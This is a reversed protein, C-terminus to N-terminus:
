EVVGAALKLAAAEIAGEFDEGANLLEAGGFRLELDEAGVGGGAELLVEAFAGDSAEFFLHGHGVGELLKLLAGAFDAIGEGGHGGLGGKDAEIQLDIAAEAVQLLGAEDFVGDLGAAVEAGAVGEVEDEAGALLEGGILAEESEFGAEFFM